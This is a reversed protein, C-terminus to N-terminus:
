GIVIEDQEYKEAYIEENVEIGLGPENSVSYMGNKFPYGKAVIADMTSRDDEAAIVSKVAKALHLGM